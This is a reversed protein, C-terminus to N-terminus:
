PQTLTTPGLYQCEYFQARSAQGGSVDDLFMQDGYLHVASQIRALHLDWHITDNPAPSAEYGPGSFKSLYAWSDRLENKMTSTARGLHDTMQYLMSALRANYSM